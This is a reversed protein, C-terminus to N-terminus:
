QVSSHTVRLFRDYQGDGEQITVVGSPVAEVPLNWAAERGPISAVVMVSFYLRGNAGVPYTQEMTRHFQEFDIMVSLPATSILHSPPVKVTLRELRVDRIEFGKQGHYKELDLFDKEVLAEIYPNWNIQGILAKTIICISRMYSGQEISTLCLKDSGRTIEITGNRLLALGGSHVVTGRFPIFFRYLEWFARSFLPYRVFLSPEVLSGAGCLRDYGALKKSFQWDPVKNSRLIWEAVMDQLKFAASFALPRLRDLAAQVAEKSESAVTDMYVIRRQEGTETTDGLTLSMGGSATESQDFLSARLYEIADIEYAVVDELDGPSALFIAM